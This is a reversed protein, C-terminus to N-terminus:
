GPISTPPISGRRHGRQRRAALSGEAVIGIGESTNKVFAIDLPDANLLRGALRRVAEARSVWEGERVVGGEALSRRQDLLRGAPRARGAAHDLFARRQTVPFAARFSTWNM